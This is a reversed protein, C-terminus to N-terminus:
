PASAPGPGVAGAAGLLPLTLGISRRSADEFWTRGGNAAIMRDCLLLDVVSAAPVPADSAEGAGGSRSGDPSRWEPRAPRVTLVVSDGTRRARVVVVEDTGQSRVHAALMRLAHSIWTPDVYAHPLGPDGRYEITPLDRGGPSARGAREVLWEVEVAQPRLMPREGGPNSLELVRNAVETLAGTAAVLGELHQRRTAEDLSLHLLSQSYGGILALTARLELGASGALLAWPADAAMGEGASSVGPGSTLPVTRDRGSPDVQVGRTGFAATAEPVM